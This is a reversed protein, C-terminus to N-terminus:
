RGRRGCCRARVRAGGGRRGQREDLLLQAEFLEREAAALGFEVYPVVEGPASATAWTASRTSARIAGTATSARTRTTPRCCRCSRSWARPDDEQRHPQRLRRVVRRGPAGQRLARDAAQRGRPRAEVAGRRDGPRVVGGNNTWQGGVVLQFHPVRRGGVNRSVGLFGIDAVHHQAARTSAAAPRSTCTSPTRIATSARRACSSACSARWGARRRSASSAPTPARAPPSTASRAPARRRWASAGQAGRLADPLDAESVWRLLMNQEVTTRMTDGTYKRAIDALARAQESTLDGLPLTITRSRRLGAPAAAHRQDRALRRLGDPCRGPPCRGPRASRSRTPPTCTPSSRRGARIPACSPASKSCWGSPVGRHRAEQGRVQHARTARNEKEGLRAFVRSMAQSM